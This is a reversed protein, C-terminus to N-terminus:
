LYNLLLLLPFMEKPEGEFFKNLIMKRNCTAYGTVSRAKIATECSIKWHEDM